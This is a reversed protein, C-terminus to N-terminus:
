TPSAEVPRLIWRKTWTFGHGSPNADPADDPSSLSDPDEDPPAYPGVGVIRATLIRDLEPFERELYASGESQILGQNPGSGRPAGEGYGSHITEYVAMGEVVQGFPSFGMADLRSNDALNIFLQTTRSDPGASAFSLSGKLNSTVVPDDPIRSQRWAAAMAPDAPIGFQVVFGEVVRFFHAGDYFGARVLNFFRDAGHPARARAVNVLFDGATTQFAVQFTDPAEMRFEPHEPNLIIGPPIPPVLPGSPACGGVLAVLLLPVFRITARM